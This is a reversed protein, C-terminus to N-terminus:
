RGHHTVEPIIRESTRDLERVTRRADEALHYYYFTEEPGSHGLYASLYPMMQGVDVGADVWSGIRRVCFAHRLCHPTPRGRGRTGPVQDWLEAFKHDYTAKHVHGESGTGPFLWASGACASSALLAEYRGIMAGLDDAVYVVRDKDGKSHRVFLTGASVDVDERRLCACESIRMGCCYMLRFAVRYGDAMLAYDGGDYSDLAAFFGRAEDETPIYPVPTEPSQSLGRPVYADLGLSVMRLSLQRLASLLGSRWSAGCSAKSELLSCALERTPTDGEFGVDVCHRDICWLEYAVARYSYGRSRKSDVLGQIHPALGSKFEHGDITVGM